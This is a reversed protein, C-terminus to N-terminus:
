QFFEMGGPAAKPVVDSIGVPVVPVPLEFVADGAGLLELPQHGRERRLFEGPRFQGVGLKRKGDGRIEEVQNIRRVFM